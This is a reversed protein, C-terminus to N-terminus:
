RYGYDFRAGEGWPNYYVNVLMKTPDKGPFEIDIEQRPSDRHLFVGTILGSLRPPKIVVEFRGYHFKALTTLAGSSYQRVGMNENRITFVMSTDTGTSLNSPSFLAMNGPFTDCRSIWPFGAFWFADDSSKEFSTSHSPSDPTLERTPVGDWEDKSDVIWPSDDRQLWQGTYAVSQFNPKDDVELRRQGLERITPYSSAPPVTGLFECLVRWKSQHDDTLYLVRNAWAKAYSVMSVSGETTIILISEPYLSALGDNLRAELSGVNVYADFVPTGTKSFVGKEESIPLEDLDSCCRYGLMSLAMALSTLGTNPAGFAFVPKPLPRSYFTGPTESNLVGLKSLVPM